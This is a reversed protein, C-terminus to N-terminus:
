KMKNHMKAWLAAGFSALSTNFMVSMRTMDMIEPALSAVTSAILPLASVAMIINAASDTIRSFPPISYYYRSTYVRERFALEDGLSNAFLLQM